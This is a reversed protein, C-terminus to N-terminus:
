PNGYLEDWAKLQRSIRAVVQGYTMPKTLHFADLHTPENYYMSAQKSLFDKMELRADDDVIGDILTCLLYEYVNNEVQLTEVKAELMALREELSQNASEM